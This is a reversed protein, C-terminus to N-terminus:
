KPRCIQMDRYREYHLLTFGPVLKQFMKATVNQMICWEKFNYNLFLQM